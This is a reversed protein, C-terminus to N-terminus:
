GPNDGPLGDELAPKAREVLADRTALPEIGEAARGAVGSTVDGRGRKAKRAHRIAVDLRELAEEFTVGVVDRERPRALRRGVDDGKEHLSEGALRDAPRGSPSTMIWM